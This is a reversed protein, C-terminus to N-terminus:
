YNVIKHCVRFLSELFIDIDEENHSASIFNTEFQSPPLYIGEKLMGNFYIAFKNTDCERAEDLNIPASKRFFITFMGGKQSVSIELNHKKSFATVGDKLRSSLRKIKDYPPNGVLEQITALGAALVLPNGSLTGAQYVDGTPSLKEMFERKGVIAGVPLGGGIIKGLCTLDPTVGCITGFTTAALRFGTIVEDFILIAKHRSCLERLKELFDDKPKILGMNGAIPEVVVGGINKGETAMIKSFSKIDNYPCVITETAFSTSVGASSVKGETLLGSGAEVLLGDSHGHYNGAFKVIKNKNSIGRALRIATMTAETGSNVVRIKEASPICDLITQAYEVEIATNTGFSTGKKATREIAQIIKEPAHGLIMPGWSGCFDLYERGEVSWLRSGKGKEMCVPTGGVAGFARVPSNVGGPIISIAKKFLQKSNM